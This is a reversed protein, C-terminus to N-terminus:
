MASQAAMLQERLQRVREEQLVLESKSVFLGQNNAEASSGSTPRVGSGGHTTKASALVPGTTRVTQKQTTSSAVNSEASGSTATQKLMKITGHTTAPLSLVINGASVNGRNQQQSAMNATSTNTAKILNSNEKRPKATASLLASAAGPSGKGSQKQHAKIGHALLSPVISGILMNSALTANGTNTTTTHHKGLLNNLLTKTPPPISSTSKIPKIESIGGSKNGTSTAVKIGGPSATKDPSNTDVNSAAIPHVSGNQLWEVDVKIETKTEHDHVVFGRLRNEWLCPFLHQSSSASSSSSSSSSTTSSPGTTSLSSPTSPTSPHNGETKATAPMAAPLPPFPLHPPKTTTQDQSKTQDVNGSDGAPLPSEASPQSSSPTPPVSTCDSTDMPEPETAKVAAVVVNEQKPTPIWTVPLKIVGCTRRIPGSAGLPNNSLPKILPIGFKGGDMGRRATRDRARRQSSVGGPIAGRSFDFASLDVSEGLFRAIQPKSRFKKGCPSSHPM